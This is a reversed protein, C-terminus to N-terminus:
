IRTLPGFVFFCSILFVFIRFYSVQYHMYTLPVPIFPIPFFDWIVQNFVQNLTHLRSIGPNVTLHSLSHIRKPILFLAIFYNM